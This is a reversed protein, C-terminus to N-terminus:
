THVSKYPRVDRAAFRVTVIDSREGTSSDTMATAESSRAVITKDGGTGNEFIGRM